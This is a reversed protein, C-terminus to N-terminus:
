TQTLNTRILELKVKKRFYAEIGTKKKSSAEDFGRLATHMLDKPADECLMFDEMIVKNPVGLIKLLAAM